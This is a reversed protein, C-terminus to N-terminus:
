YEIGLRAIVGNDFYHKHQKMETVLTAEDIFSQPAYRGTFVLETTDPRNKIIDLVEDEKLMKLFTTTNIEDCVILDYEKSNLLSKFKELGKEAEIIDGDTVGFRFQNNPLMRNLGTVEYEINLQKLIKREGYNFGGKDFYIIFCNLGRGHARMLLGLAATSKGKSDGTYIHFQANKM